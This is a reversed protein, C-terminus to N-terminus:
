LKVGKSTVFTQADELCDFFQRGYYEGTGDDIMYNVVYWNETETIYFDTLTASM